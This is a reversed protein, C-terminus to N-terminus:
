IVGGIITKIGSALTMDAIEDVTISSDTTEWENYDKNLWRYKERAFAHYPLIHLETLSLEQMLGILRITNEMTDNFGPILPLRIVINAKAFCLARLNELIKENPVGTALQHQQSDCHKVDFLFLDTYKAIQLLSKKNGYGSTEVATNIYNKRCRKLIETAAETHLLVEGGSLTVGGGSTRFFLEDKLIERVIESVTMVKAISKRAGSPCGTDCCGCNICLKENFYSENELAQTEPNACWKCRLPCGKFFIVTRLGPGDFGASREIQTILAKM